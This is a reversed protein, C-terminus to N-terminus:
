FHVPRSRDRTTLGPGTNWSTAEREDTEGTSSKRQATDGLTETSEWIKIQGEAIGCRDGRGCGCCGRFTNAGLKLTARDTDTDTVWTTEKTKRGSPRGTETVELCGKGAFRGTSMTDATLDTQCSTPNETMDEKQTISQWGHLIDPKGAVMNLEILSACYKHQYTNCIGSIKKGGNKIM